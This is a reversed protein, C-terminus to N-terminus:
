LKSYLSDIVAVPHQSEIIISDQGGLNGFIETNLRVAIEYEMGHDTPNFKITDSPFLIMTIYDWGDGFSHSFRPDILYYTDRWSCNGEVEEYYGAEKPNSAVIDVVAATCQFTDEEIPTVQTYYTKNAVATEDSTPTLYTFMKFWHLTKGQKFMFTLQDTDEFGYIKEGFNFNLSASAGRTLYIMEHSKYMTPCIRLSTRIDFQKM